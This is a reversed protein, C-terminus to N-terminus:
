LADVFYSQMFGTHGLCIVRSALNTGYPSYYIKAPSMFLHKHCFFLWHQFTSYIHPFQYIILLLEALTVNSTTGHAHPACLYFREPYNLSYLNTTKDNVLAARMCYINGLITFIKSGILMLCKRSFDHSQAQGCIFGLQSLKSARIYM